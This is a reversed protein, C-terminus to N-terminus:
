RVATTEIPSVCDTAPDVRLPLWRNFDGEAGAVFLVPSLVNADVGIDSRLRRFAEAEFLVFYLQRTGGPESVRRYGMCVPAPPMSEIGSNRVTVLLADATVRGALQRNFEDHLLLPIGPRQPRTLSEGARGFVQSFLGLVLDPSPQLVIMPGNPGSEPELVLTWNRLEESEVSYPEARSDRVSRMFLVGVVALVVLVVAVKVLPNTRAM